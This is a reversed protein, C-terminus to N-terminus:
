KKTSKRNSGQRRRNSKQSELTTGGKKTHSVDLKDGVKSKGAKHNERNKKNLEARYKKRKSTAHYAKDYQRKKRISEESMGRSKYSPHKGANRNRKSKDM